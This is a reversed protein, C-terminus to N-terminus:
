TEDAFVREMNWAKSWFNHIFKLSHNSPVNEKINEKINEKVNDLM